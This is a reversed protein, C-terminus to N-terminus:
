VYLSRPNCCLPLDKESLSTLKLDLFVNNELCVFIRRKGHLRITLACSFIQVIFIHICALILHKDNICLIFLYTIYNSITSGCSVAPCSNWDYTAGRCDLLNGTSCTRTRTKVADGCTKTCKSWPSWESLTPVVEFVEM